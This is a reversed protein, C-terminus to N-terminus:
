DLLFRRFVADQPCGSEDLHPVSLEARATIPGADEPLDVGFMRGCQGLSLILRRPGSLEVTPYDAIISQPKAKSM